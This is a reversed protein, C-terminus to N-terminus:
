EMARWAHGEVIVALEGLKRWAVYNERATRLDESAFDFNALSGRARTDALISGYVPNGRVDLHGLVSGTLGDCHFVLDGRGDIVTV